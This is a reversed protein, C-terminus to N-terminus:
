VKVVLKLVSRTGVLLNGWHGAGFCLTWPAKGLVCEGGPLGGLRVNGGAYGEQCVVLQGRRLCKGGHRCQEQTGLQMCAAVEKRTLTFFSVKRWGFVQEGVECSERTLTILQVVGLHMCPCLEWCRRVTKRGTSTPFQNWWPQIFM